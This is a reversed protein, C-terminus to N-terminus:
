ECVKYVIYYNQSVGMSREQFKLMSVKGCTTRHGKLGVKIHLAMWVNKANAV